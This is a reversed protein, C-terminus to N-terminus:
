LGYLRSYAFFDAAAVFFTGNGHSGMERMLVEMSTHEYAFRWLVNMAM